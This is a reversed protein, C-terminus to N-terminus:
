IIIGAALTENTAEDIMILSGTLRNRKYKDMFLPETTRVSIRAIDNMGINRDDLNRHLTNIDLKYQINKVMCRIDKTTHKIAYKSNPVLPNNGLWCIM